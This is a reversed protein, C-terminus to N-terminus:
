GRRRRRRTRRTWRASPRARPCADALRPGLVHVRDLAAEAVPGGVQVVHLGPGVHREDDVPAAAQNAPADARLVALAGLDERQDALHLVGAQDLHRHAHGQALDDEVDAAADRLLFRELGHLGAPRGPPQMGSCSRSRGTSKSSSVSPQARHHAGAAHDDHVLVGAHHVDGAVEEVEQFVLGAALARGAAFPELCISSMRVSMQWPRPRSPSMSVAPPAPRHHHLLGREARQAGGRGVRHQGGEAVEAVLVLRVDAVLVARRADALRQEVVLDVGLGAGAAVHAASPARCLRDGALLFFGCMMSWSAHM